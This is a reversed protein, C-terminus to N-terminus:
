WRVSWATRCTKRWRKRSGSAEGATMVWFSRWVFNWILWRLTWRTM